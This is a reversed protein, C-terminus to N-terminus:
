RRRLEGRLAHKLLIKNSTNSPVHAKGSRQGDVV